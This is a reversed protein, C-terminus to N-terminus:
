ARLFTVQEIRINHLRFLSFCFPLMSKREGRHDKVIFAETMAECIRVGCNSGPSVRVGLRFRRSRIWSSNDTLELERISVISKSKMILSIDGALLPRKGPRARVISRDFEESTWDNRDGSPFDGDLAVIEIKIPDPLMALAVPNGRTDVLLIQLPAGDQDVIKTGTFIPLSLSSSFKLELASPELAQLKLSSSRTISRTCCRLGREM